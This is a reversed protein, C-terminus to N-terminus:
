FIPEDWCGSTALTVYTFHKYLAKARSGYLIKEPSLEAGRLHYHLILHETLGSTAMTVYLLNNSKVPKLEFYRTLRRLHLILHDPLGPGRATCGAPSGSRGRRLKQCRRAGGETGLGGQM